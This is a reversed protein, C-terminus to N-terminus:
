RAVTCTTLLSSTPANDVCFLVSLPNVTNALQGIAIASIIQGAAISINPIALPETTTNAVRAAVTATLPSTELTGGSNGFAVNAFLRTFNGHADKIGVDVNPTGPSAHVFRLKGKGATVATSDPFIALHFSSLTGIAGVTAFLGPALNVNTTDPV